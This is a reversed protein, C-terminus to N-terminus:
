KHSDNQLGNALYSIMAEADYPLSLKSPTGAKLKADLAAPSLWEYSVYDERNYSPVTDTFYLYLSLFYPPEDPRPGTHAVFHLDKPDVVMNLEEEFGRVLADIYPEGTMAHEGVSYDLGNPAISKEATRKPIWLEGKSNVIFGNSARLYNGRLNAENYADLHTISGVVQEDKDVLDLIEDADSIPESM